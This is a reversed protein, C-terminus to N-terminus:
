YLDDPAEDAFDEKAQNIGGIEQRKDSEHVLTPKGEPKVVWEGLLADFNAKKVLKEIDGIGKLKINLFQDRKFKKGALTKQIAEEDTWKRNSRGAVLKHEAWKKGNLAEKFVYDEISKAWNTLGPIQMYVEILEEDTLLQPDAFDHKAIELNQAALAKCRPKVRCWQCWDGACQEGEGAFAVKAKPIVVDQGWKHLDEASIKWTSINNIRPQYVVLEVTDIAFMLENARLAGLGYLMLQANNEASVRIGKGYKFDPVQMIRNAIIISDCTGFSEPVFYTLDIKEEILLDAYETDKKAVNFQELVYEVYEAVFGEMEDTYKEHRRLLGIAANYKPLKIRGTQYNLELDAFEHALTGEAAFDSESEAFEEELRPSPTCNIWRAAGSASLLAHARDTHKETM